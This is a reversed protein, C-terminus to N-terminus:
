TEIKVAILLTDEGEQKYKTDIRHQTKSLEKTVKQCSLFRKKTTSKM